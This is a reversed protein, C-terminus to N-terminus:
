AAAPAPHFTPWAVEDTARVTHAVFATMAVIWALMALWNWPHLPVAMAAAAVVGATTMPAGFRRDRDIGIAAAIAPVGLLFSGAGFLSSELGWQDLAHEASVTGAAAEGALQFAVAASAIMCFAWVAM